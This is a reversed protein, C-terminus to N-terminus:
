FLWVLAGAIIVPTLGIASIITEGALYLAGSFIAKRGISSTAASLALSGTTKVINVPIMYSTNTKNGKIKIMIEEESMEPYAIPDSTILNNQPLQPHIM